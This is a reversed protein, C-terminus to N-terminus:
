GCNTGLAVVGLAQLEAVADAPRVGMMTRGGQDFTMSCLIPLDTTRRIGEVAARVENLDYMTEVIFLDAGGEALAAAQEGFAEVAEAYPVDGLPELIAAMPGVSGAVLARDGAAERALRAAAVNLEWVRDELDAHRLRIRNGGFSNTEVIDAGADVYARHIEAIAEPATVNLEEPCLGQILDRAQLETGLAGDLVVVKRQLLDALTPRM